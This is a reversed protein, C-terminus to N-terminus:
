GNLTGVQMLFKEEGLRSRDFHAMIGAKGAIASLPLSGGILKGLTRLDPVVGYHRHTGGCTICYGTVGEDFILVIDRKTCIQRLNELFGRELPIIRQLPEVIVGAIEIANSEIIWSTLEVDNFPAIPIENRVSDLIGAFDHM